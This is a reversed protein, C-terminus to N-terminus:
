SREGLRLPSKMTDDMFKRLINAVDHKEALRDWKIAGENLKNEAEAQTQEAKKFREEDMYEVAESLQMFAEEYRELAAIVANNIELVERTKIDINTLKDRLDAFAPIISGNITRLYTDRDRGPHGVQNVVSEFSALFEEVNHSYNVMDDKIPDGCNALLAGILAFWIILRDKRMPMGNGKM